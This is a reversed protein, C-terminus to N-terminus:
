ERPPLFIPPPPTKGAQELARDIDADNQHVLELPFKEVPAVQEWQPNEFVRVGGFNGVEQFGAALARQAGQPEPAAIHSAVQALSRGALAARHSALGEHWYPVSHHFYYYGGTALPDLATWLAARMKDPPVRSLFRGAQLLPSQQFFFRPQRIEPWFSASLGPLSHTAGALSLLALVAAAIKKGSGRLFGRLFQPPHAVVGGFILAFLPLALFIHSYSHTNALAHVVLLVAVGGLPLWRRRWEAAAMVFLLPWLGGSCATLRGIQVHWATSGFGKFGGTISSTELYVFVSQLFGGWVAWDAAGALVLAAVAGGLVYPASRLPMKVLILIGLLGAVPIYPLRLLGGLGICLGALLLRAGSKASAPSDASLAQRPPVCALGVLIFIAATQEPMLHPAFVVFEYWLCGLILAARGATEGHMRRAIFYLAAPLALSFAAYFLEVAPVYCDPGGGVSKCLALIGVAPAAILMNRAGIRIEWPMFGAGFVFRHAQELYQMIEDARYVWDSSFAALLRLAFGVALLTWLHRWVPSECAPPPFLAFGGDQRRTRADATPHNAPPRGAKHKKRALSVEEHRRELPPM